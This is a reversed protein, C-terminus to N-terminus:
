NGPKAFFDVSANIYKEDSDIDVETNKDTTQDFVNITSPASKEKKANCINPDSRSFIVKDETSALLKIQRVSDFGTLSEYKKTKLDLQYINSKHPKNTVTSFLLTDTSNGVKTMSEISGGVSCTATLATTTAGAIDGLPNAVLTDKYDDLNVKRVTDATAIYYADDGIITIRGSDYTKPSLKKILKGTELSSINLLAAPGGETEIGWYFEDREKSAGMVFASGYTTQQDFLKEKASGDPKVKYFSQRVDPIYYQDPTAPKNAIRKTSVILEDADDFWVFDVSEGSKKELVVVGEEPKSATSVEVGKETVKAIYKSSTSPTYPQKVSTVESGDYSIEAFQDTKNYYSTLWLKTPAPAPKASSEETAANNTSQVAPDSRLLFFAAVGAGIVVLLVVLLIVIKRKSKPKQNREEPPTEYVPQSPEPETPLQPSPVKPPTNDDM